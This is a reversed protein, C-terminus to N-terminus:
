KNKNWESEIVNVTGKIWKCIEKFESPLRCKVYDNLLVIRNANVIQPKIVLYYILVKSKTLIKNQVSNTLM